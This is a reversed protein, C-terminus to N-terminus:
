IKEFKMEFKCNPQHLYYVPQTYIVDHRDPWPRGHGSVNIQKWALIRRDTQSWMFRRKNLLELIVKVPNNWVLKDANEGSDNILDFGILSGYVKNSNDNLPGMVENKVKDLFWPSYVSWVSVALALMMTKQEEVCV